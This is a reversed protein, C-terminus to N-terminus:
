KYKTFVVKGNKFDNYATITTLYKELTKKCIQLSEGTRDRYLKVSLSSVKNDKEIMIRVHPPIYYNLDELAKEFDENTTHKYFDM